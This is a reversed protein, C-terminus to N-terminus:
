YCKAASQRMSPDWCNSSYKKVKYNRVLPASKVAQKWVGTAIVKKLKGSAFDQKFNDRAKPNIKADDTFGLHVYNLYEDKSINGYVFTYDPLLRKLYMGHEITEVMILAQEDAPVQSALYGIMLNRINNRWYAARKKAHPVKKGTPRGKVEYLWVEIPTATGKAVSDEYDFEAIIPGFFSETIMECGDSRGTPTATFGFMRADDVWRLADAVQNYGCAHVEDFMLMDCGKLDAHMISSVTTCIIRRESSDKKGAGIMGVTGDVFAPKLRDYINTIDDRGPSVIVIKLTPYMLCIQKILFSKGWGTNCVVTGCHNTAIAILTEPQDERLKDVAAFNPEPMLKALDRNDVYNIAIGKQKLHQTVRYMVGGPFYGVGDKVSYLKERVTRFPTKRTKFSDGKSEVVRDMRTFSLTDVLSTVWPEMKCLNGSREIRVQM